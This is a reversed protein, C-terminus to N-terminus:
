GPDSEPDVNEPIEPNSEAAKEAAEDLAAKAEEVVADPAAEEAAPEPTEEAPAPEEEGGEAEPSPTAEEGEAKAPTEPTVAEAEGEGLEDMLSAEPLEPVAPASEESIEPAPTIQIGAKHNKNGILIALSLSLIIFLGGMYVTAKQLFSTTGAGAFSDMVGGGFAAGLGEQKPRQMLVVLILLFSVVVHVVMLLNITINIASALIM